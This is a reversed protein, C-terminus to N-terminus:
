VFKNIIGSDIVLFISPIKQDGFVIFFKTVLLKTVLLKPRLEMVINTINCSENWM